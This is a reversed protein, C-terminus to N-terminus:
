ARVVDEYEITFVTDPEVPKKERSEQALGTPAVCVLVLLFLLFRM